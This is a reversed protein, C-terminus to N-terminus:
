FPVEVKKPEVIEGREAADQNAEAAEILQAKWSEYVGAVDEAHVSSLDATKDVGAIDMMKAKLEDNGVGYGNLDKILMALRRRQDPTIPGAVEVEIPTEVAAAIAKTPITEIESEDMMGLGLISITVRRKGKTEAKMLANCLADGKLGAISVAGISDETRGDPLTARVTVIYVDDLRERSVVERRLGHIRALQDTAGKAFYFIQKGNLTLPILPQTAPNLGLSQCLEQFYRVKEAPKLGSIDGKLALSEYLYGLDATAHKNAEQASM